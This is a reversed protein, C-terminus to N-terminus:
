AMGSKREARAQTQLFHTGQHIARVTFSVGALQRWYKSQIRIFEDCECPASPAGLCNKQGSKM